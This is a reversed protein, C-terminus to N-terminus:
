KEETITLIVNRKNNRSSKMALGIAIVIVIAGLAIFPVSGFVKDRKLSDYGGSTVNYLEAELDLLEGEVHSINRVYEEYKESMASTEYEEDRKKRLDESEKIKKNIDSKLEAETRVNFDNYAANINNYIGLGILAGGLFLGLIIIGVSRTDRKRVVRGKVESKRNTRKKM